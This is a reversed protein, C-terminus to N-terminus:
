FPIDDDQCQEPTPKELVENNQVIFKAREFLEDFTIIEPNHLENRFIEFTEIKERDDSFQTTSGIVVIGRPSITFINDKSLDDNNEPEVSKRLWTKCNVQVQSISGLLEKNLLYAGNRYKKDKGDRDRAILSTDPKKIEVLVTFKIEAESSLLYDGKQGGKGTVNGGGFHPQDEVLNLFKYKLGYGFIWLNDKFFNQWYLEDKEAKLNREFEDLAKQRDIQIKSMSLRKALDPDCGVLQNWVDEGHNAKLLLNIFQRRNEPVKIIENSEREYNLRM